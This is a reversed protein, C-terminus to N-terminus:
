CRFDVTVVINVASTNSTFYHEKFDNFRYMNGTELKVAKDEVGLFASKGIKVPFLFCSKSLEDTHKPISGIIRHVVIAVSDKHKIPCQNTFWKRLYDGEGSHVSIFTQVWNKDLNRWHPVEKDLLKLLKTKPLRNTLKYRRIM